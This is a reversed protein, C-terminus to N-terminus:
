KPEAKRFTRALGDLFRIRAQAIADKNAEVAERWPQHHHLEPFCNVQELWSDLGRITQPFTSSLGLRTLGRARRSLSDQEGRATLFAFHQRDEEEPGVYPEPPHWIRGPAKADTVGAYFAAFDEEFSQHQQPVALAALTLVDVPFCAFFKPLDPTGITELATRWHSDYGDRIAKRLDGGAPHQEDGLSGPKVPTFRLYTLVDAVSLRNMLLQLNLQELQAPTMYIRLRKLYDPFTSKSPQRLAARVTEDLVQALHPLRAERLEELFACWPAELRKELDRRLAEYTGELLAETYGRSADGLLDFVMAIFAAPRKSPRYHYLPLDPRSWVFELFSLAHLSRGRASDGRCAAVLGYFYSILTHMYVSEESVHTAGHALIDKRYGVVVQAPQPERSHPEGIVVTTPLSITM